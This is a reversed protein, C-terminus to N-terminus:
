FGVEVLKLLINLVEFSLYQDSNKSYITLNSTSEWSLATKPHWLKLGPISVEWISIMPTGHGTIFFDMAWEVPYHNKDIFDNHTIM